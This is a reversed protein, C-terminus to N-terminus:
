LSAVVCKLASLFIELQAIGIGSLREELRQIIEPRHPEDPYVSGGGTTESSGHLTPPLETCRNKVGRYRGKPKLAPYGPSSDQATPIRM